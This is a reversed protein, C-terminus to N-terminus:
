LRWFMGWRLRSRWSIDAGAYIGLHRHIQYTMGARIALAYTFGPSIKRDTGPVNRQHYVLTGNQYIDYTYFVDKWFTMRGGLRFHLPFKKWFRVGLFASVDNQYGMFHLVHVINEHQRESQFSYYSRSLGGGFVIYEDRYLHYEIGMEWGFRKRINQNFFPAPNFLGYNTGAYFVTRGKIMDKLTLSDVPWWQSYGGQTWALVMWLAVLKKMDTIM